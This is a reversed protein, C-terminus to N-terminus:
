PERRKEREQRELESKLRDILDSMEKRTPPFPEKVGAGAMLDTAYDVQNQTRKKPKGEKADRKRKLESIVGSMEQYTDPPELDPKGVQEKLVDFYKLQNGTPPYNQPGSWPRKDPPATKTGSLGVHAAAEGFSRGNRRLLIAIYDDADARTDVEKHRSGTEEELRRIDALQDKTPKRNGYYPDKRRRGLKEAM